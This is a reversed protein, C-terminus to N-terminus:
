QKNGDLFGIFKRAEEGMGSAPDMEITKELVGRAEETQGASILVFGLSL